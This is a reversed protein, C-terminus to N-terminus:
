FLKGMLQAYNFNDGLCQSISVEQGSFGMKKSSYIHVYKPVKIQNMVFNYGKETLRWYGSNRKSPDKINTTEILDWHKLVSFDLGSTQKKFELIQSIHISVGNTQNTAHYLSILFMSMGTNLKRKYKKALQGCCPCQVGKELNDVVFKQADHLYTFM